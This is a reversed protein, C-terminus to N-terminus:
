APAQIDVPEDIKTLDFRRVVDAQDAATLPGVFEVRRLHNAEDIWIKVPIPKDSTLGSLEDPVPTGTVDTAQRSVQKPDFQGEVRTTATADIDDQGAIVPDQVVDVAAQLLRDPNLIDPLPINGEEGTSVQIWKEDRSMPDTVWIDSGIGIVKVTLSVISAKATFSVKFRDPRQIDGEIGALELQNALMSKGSPTSMEFHFSKVTAMAAATQELLPRADQDQAAVLRPVVASVLGAMAAMMAARRSLKWVLLEHDQRM